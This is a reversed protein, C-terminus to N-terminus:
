FCHTTHQRRHECHHLLRDGRQPGLHLHHEHTQCVARGPQRVDAAGAQSLCAPWLLVIHTGRALLAFLCFFGLVFCLAAITCEHAFQASYEALLLVNRFGSSDELSLLYDHKIGQHWNFGFSLKVKAPKTGLFINWTLFLWQVLLCWPWISQSETATLNGQKNNWKTTNMWLHVNIILLHLQSSCLCCALIRNLLWLSLDFPRPHGATM